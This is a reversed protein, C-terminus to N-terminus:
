KKLKIKWYIGGQISVTKSNNYGVGLSYINDKKTKLIMSPGAFNVVNVKDFGLVMGYYIQTRPPEKVILKDEITREVLNINWKRFLINNKFITDTIDVYGLNNPFKLTDKYINKSYYEKLIAQTDIPIDVPIPVYITTDHYIDKGKKTIVSDHVIEVTDIKHSLVEYKKGNIKITEGKEVPKKDFLKMLIIIVFLTLILLTKFDLKKLWSM